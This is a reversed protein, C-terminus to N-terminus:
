PDRTIFKMDINNAHSRKALCAIENFFFFFYFRIGLPISDDLASITMSAIWFFKRTLRAAQLSVLNCNGTLSSRICWGLLRKCCSITWTPANLMAADWPRLTRSSLVSLEGSKDVYRTHMLNKERERERERKIITCIHTSWEALRSTNHQLVAYLYVSSIM